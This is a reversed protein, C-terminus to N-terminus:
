GDSTTARRREDDRDKLARKQAARLARSFKKLAKASPRKVEAGVGAMFALGSLRIVPQGPDLVDEDATEAGFGGMVAMGTTEVRVGPPVIVGVYGMVALVEIETVGPAFRAQRLDLEAGGMIAVVKLYRPVLWGGARGTGGMFAALFGREPVSGSAVRAPLAWSNGLEPALPPLDATLEALAAPTTARCALELRRELEDMTLDENAFHVGLDHVVRDRLEKRSADAPAPWDPRSLATGSPPERSTM